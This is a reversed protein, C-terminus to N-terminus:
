NKRNIVFDVLSELAARSQSEPFIQLSNRAKQAYESARDLAYNLGDHTKVFDIVKEVNNKDKGNKILRKIQQVEDKSVKSFSYILPLTIKKEIIDTGIKKGFLKYNGDYDLTDDKIQFAIGLSEGYVRMAEVHEPNNSSSLAGIQCCTELLSATKDKIVRFYTQEDIDLKRTKQIQLLEGEAMRKVTNTIVGLFDHDKGEVALSLGRSLLYDGMLVAAKNKFVANVSWLGRRKEANDVVDDHILTATHLFEVLVAGRYTREVIGGSVKGSLLVLIPRIKKGKQRIIYRAILDVLGVNSKMALKFRVNFDELEKKIPQSIETLNSTIM